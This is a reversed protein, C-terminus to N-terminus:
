LDASIEGEIMRINQVNVEFSKWENWYSDFYEMVVVSKYMNSLDKIRVLSWKAERLAEDPKPFTDGCALVLKGTELAEKEVPRTDLVYPTWFEIESTDSVPITSRVHAEYKTDASPPVVIECPYFPVTYLTGMWDFLRIGCIKVGEGLYDGAGKDNGTKPTTGSEAVPVTACSLIIFLLTFVFLINRLSKM